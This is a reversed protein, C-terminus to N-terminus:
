SVYSKSEYIESKLTSEIQKTLNEYFDFKDTPKKEVILYPMKANMACEGDLEQRDGVFLCEDQSVGLKEMIYQLASPDPKLRDIEPDTSAVVLDAQLDMAKLKDNAKYDSYIAIKKGHRRLADFFSKTGPYVCDALYQNPFTFIWQGIVKKITDIPFNGKEACWIYQAEELNSCPNGTRKEREARFHHLILMEKLRWPRLSYYSLLAYLMKKRLKSQRYLTGDVDFIVVKIKKWNIVQEEEM